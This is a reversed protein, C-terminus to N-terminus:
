SYYITTPIQRLALPSAPIPLIANPSASHAFPYGHPKCSLILYATFAFSPRTVWILIRSPSKGKKIALETVGLVEGLEHDALSGWSASDMGCDLRDTLASTSLIRMAGAFNPWALYGWIARRPAQGEPCHLVSLRDLEVATQFTETASSRDKWDEASEGKIEKPVSCGETAERRGLASPMVFTCPVSPDM